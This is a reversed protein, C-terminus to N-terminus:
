CYSVQLDMNAKALLDCEDELSLRAQRENKLDERLKEVEEQDISEHQEFLGLSDINIM